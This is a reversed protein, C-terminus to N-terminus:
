WQRREKNLASPPPKQSTLLSPFTYTGACLERFFTETNITLVEKEKVILISVRLHTITYKNTVHPKRLIPIFQM